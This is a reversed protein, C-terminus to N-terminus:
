SKRDSRSGSLDFDKIAQASAVNSRWVVLVPRVIDLCLRLEQDSCLEIIQLLERHPNTEYSTQEAVVEPTFGRYLYDLTFHFYGCLKEAMNLSLIRKGREIDGIYNASVNLESALTEQSIGLRKRELRIRQGIYPNIPVPFSKM